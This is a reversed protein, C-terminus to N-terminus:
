DRSNGDEISEESLKSGCRRCVVRRRRGLITAVTYAFEDHGAQVCTTKLNVGIIAEM